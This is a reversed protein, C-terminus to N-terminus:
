ALVWVVTVDVDPYTKQYIMTPGVQSSVSEVHVAAPLAPFTERIISKAELPQVAKTIPAQKPVSVFNQKSPIALIGALLFLTAFAIAPIGFGSFIGAPAGSFNEKLFREKAEQVAPTKLEDEIYSRYIQDLKEDNM